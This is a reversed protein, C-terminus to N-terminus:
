NKDEKISWKRYKPDTTNCPALYLSRAMFPGASRSNEGVVLCFTDDNKPRFESTERKFHFKQRLSNISCKILGLRAGKLTPGIIEACKDVFTASIIQLTVERYLFQVDGGYPKCSHTHLRDAFGRGITDICWGLKDREDLNDNLYILPAPTQINPSNGWVSSPWLIFLSIFILKM